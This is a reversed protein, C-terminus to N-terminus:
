LDFDLDLLELLLPLYEEDLYPFLTLELLNIGLTNSKHGYTSVLVDFLYYPTLYPLVPMRVQVDQPVRPLLGQFSQKINQM